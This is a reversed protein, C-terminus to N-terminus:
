TIARPNVKVIKRIEGSSQCAHRAHSSSASPAEGSLKKREKLGTTASNVWRPFLFTEDICGIIEDVVLERFRDGKRLPINGM